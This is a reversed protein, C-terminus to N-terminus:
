SMWMGGSVGLTEGTIYAAGDSALFAVAAAVEEPRGLRGLETAGVIAKVRMDGEAGLAHGEWMAPTDVPGPAVCNVTVGYRASERAISKTFAIVAGKCASYVANGKGGMRGAESSINVIRGAGREQMGPLVAHTCLLVGELNVAIMPRWQSPQSKAFWGVTEFGANNVLIDVQGADAFAQAVSGPDSVDLPLARGGIGEAVAEAAALDLDTVIVENGDAALRRAVEAGIGRGAGTILAVRV